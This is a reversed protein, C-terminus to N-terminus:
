KSPTVEFTGYILYVLHKQFKPVNNSITLLYHAELHSLLIQSALHKMNILIMHLCFHIIYLIDDTHTFILFNTIYMQAGLCRVNTMVELM